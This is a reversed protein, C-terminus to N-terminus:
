VHLDPIRKILEAYTTKESGVEVLTQLFANTFIGRGNEEHAFENSGCAAFLMHSRLGSHCFGPAIDSARHRSAKQRMKTAFDPPLVSVKASRIL